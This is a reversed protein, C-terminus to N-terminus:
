GSRQQEKLWAVAEESSAFVGRNSTSGGLHARTLVADSFTRADPAVIALALPPYNRENEILPEIAQQLMAESMQSTDLFSADLLILLGKRFREDSLRADTFRRFGEPTAVGSLM